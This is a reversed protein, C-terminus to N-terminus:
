LHAPSLQPPQSQAPNSSQSTPPRPTWNPIVINEKQWLVTGKIAKGLENLDGEGVPFDLKLQEFGKMVEDV